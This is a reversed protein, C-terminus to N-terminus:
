STTSMNIEFERIDKIKGHCPIMQRWLLFLRKEEVDFILTDLNTKEKISSQEFTAEVEISIGPLRLTMPGFPSVNIARLTETGRLYSDTILDPYASQCFRYDFDEPLFPSREKQWRDDYTGAFNVRPPYQKPFFGFGNGKPKSKFMGKKQGFHDLLYLPIKDMAEDSKVTEKKAVSGISFQVDMDKIKKGMPDYAYGMMILDTSPKFLALDSEYKVPSEGPEGWFEDAFNIPIQNEATALTKGKLISFTGKIINTFVEFGDKDYNPVAMFEFPTNNKVEM